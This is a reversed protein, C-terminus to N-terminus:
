RAVEGVEVEVVVVAHVHAVEALKGLAVEGDQRLDAIVSGLSRVRMTKEKHRRRLRTHECADEGSGARRTEGRPRPANMGGSTGMRRAERRCRRPGTVPRSARM